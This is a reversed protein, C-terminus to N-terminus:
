FGTSTLERETPAESGNPPYEPAFSAPRWTSVRSVTHSRMRRAARDEARSARSGRPPAHDRACGPTRDRRGTNFGRKARKGHDIMVNSRHRLRVREHLAEEVPGPSTMPLMMEVETSSLSSTRLVRAALANRNSVSPEPRMSNWPRLAISVEAYGDGRARPRRWPATGDSRRRRTRRARRRRTRRARAIGVCCPAGSRMGPTM